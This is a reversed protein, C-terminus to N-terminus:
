EEGDGVAVSRGAASGALYDLLPGAEGQHRYVLFRAHQQLEALLLDPVGLPPLPETPYLRGATVSDVTEDTKLKSTVFTRIRRATRPPEDVHVRGDKGFSTDVLVLERDRLPIRPLRRDGFAGFSLLLANEPGFYSRDRRYGAYNRRDMAGGAARAALFEHFREAIDPRVRMFTPTATLVTEPRGGLVVLSDNTIMTHGHTALSDLLMTTKGSWKDGAFAIIREGDDVASAHLVLLARSRAVRDFWAHRVLRRATACVGEEDATTAHVFFRHEAVRDIVVGWEAVRHVLLPVDAPPPALVTVEFAPEAAGASRDYFGDFYDFGRDTPSNVRVTWDDLRYTVTHM